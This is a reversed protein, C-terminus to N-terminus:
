ILYQYWYCQRLLISQTHAVKTITLPAQYSGCCWEDRWNKEFENQNQYWFNLWIKRVKTSFNTTFIHELYKLFFWCFYQKSILFRPWWVLYFLLYACNEGIRFWICTEIKKVTSSINLHFSVKDALKLLILKEFNEHWAGKKWVIYLM